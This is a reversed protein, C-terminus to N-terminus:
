VRNGDSLQKCRWRAADRRWQSVEDIVHLGPWVFLAGVVVSSLWGLGIAGCIVQIGVAYMLLASWLWALVFWKNRDGM